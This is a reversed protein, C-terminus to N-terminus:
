SIACNRQIKSNSYNKTQERIYKKLNVAERDIEVIKNDLTRDKGTLLSYALMFKEQFQKMNTIKFESSQEYLGFWVIQLANMIHGNLNRSSSRVNNFKLVDDLFRDVVSLVRKSVPNKGEYEGRVLAEIERQGADVNGGGIAKLIAIFVYEDWKRRPNVDGDFNTAVWTATTAASSSRAGM